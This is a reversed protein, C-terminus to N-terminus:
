RRSRRQLCTSGVEVELNGLTLMRGAAADRAPYAYIRVDRNFIRGLAELLGGGLDRYCQERLLEMVSPIGRAFGIPGSTHRRMGRRKRRAVKSKETGRRLLIM